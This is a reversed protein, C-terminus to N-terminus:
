WSASSLRSRASESLGSSRVAVQLLATSSSDMPSSRSAQGRQSAAVAEFPDDVVKVRQQPSPKAVELMGRRGQIADEVAEDAAAQAGDQALLVLAGADSAARGVM